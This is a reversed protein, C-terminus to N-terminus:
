DLLPMALALITVWSHTSNSSDAPNREFETQFGVCIILQNQVAPTPPSSEGTWSCVMTKLSVYEEHHNMM